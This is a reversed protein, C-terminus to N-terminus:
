IWGPRPAQLNCVDPAVPDLANRAGLSKSRMVTFRSGWRQVSVERSCWRGTDSHTSLLSPSSRGLMWLGRPGSSRDSLASQRGWAHAGRGWLILGFCCTPWLGAPMADGPRQQGLSSTKVIAGGLTVWLCGDVLFPFHSWKDLLHIQVRSPFWPPNRVSVGPLLGRAHGQPLLTKELGALGQLTLFSVGDRHPQRLSRWSCLHGLGDAWGGTRRPHRDCAAGVRAHPEPPPHRPALPLRVHVM